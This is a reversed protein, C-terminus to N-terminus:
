GRRLTGRLDRAAMGFRAKFTRSFHAADNFGWAFAIESISRPQAALLDGRCRDLRKQLITAAVSTGTPEFLLHLYRVSMGLALSIQNPSLGPNALHDDIYRVARQRQVDRAPANTREADPPGFVGGALELVAGLGREWEAPTLENRTRSLSTLADAFVAALGRRPRIMAHQTRLPRGLAACAIEVPVYLFDEAYEASLRKDFPQDSTLMCVEGARLTREGGPTVITAEGRTVVTLGIAAPRTEHAIRTPSRVLALGPERTRLDLGIVGANANVAVEFRAGLHQTSSWPSEAGLLEDCIKNRWTAIHRDDLEFTVAKSAERM